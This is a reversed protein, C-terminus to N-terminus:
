SRRVPLGLVDVNSVRGHTDEFRWHWGDFFVWLRVWQGRWRVEFGDGNHLYEDQRGARGVIKYRGSGYSLIGECASM